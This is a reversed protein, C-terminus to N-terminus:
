SEFFFFFFFDSFFLMNQFHNYLTEICMNICLLTSNILEFQMVVLITQKGIKQGVKCINYGYCSCACVYVGAQWLTGWQYGHLNVAVWVFVRTHVELHTDLQDIRM